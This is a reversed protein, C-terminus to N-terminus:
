REEAQAGIRAPGDLAFERRANEAIGHLLYGDLGAGIFGGVLPVGRGFRSLVSKGSTSLIRFAVAKNLVMLAPGPLRQALLSTVKGTPSVMGAKALITSAEAGALSLLVASRVQPARVDHGHVEAIAASMRTAFVYFGTVNIPLAVPLTVFGGLGTVFGNGVALALHQKVIADTAKAPTQHKRLAAAAIEHASDFPGKGEIGVDLVKSISAVLKGSTAGDDHRTAM